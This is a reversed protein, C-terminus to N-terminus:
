EAILGERVVGSPYVRYRFEDPDLVIPRWPHFAADEYKRRLRGNKTASQRYYESWKHWNEDSEDALDRGWTLDAQEERAYYSARRLCMARRQCLGLAWVVLAVVAVAVMTRRVTFRVCPLRM